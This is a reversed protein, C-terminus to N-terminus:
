FFSDAVIGFFIRFGSTVRRYSSFLKPRFVFCHKVKNEEILFLVRFIKIAQIRKLLINWM